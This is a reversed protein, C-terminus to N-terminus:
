QSLNLLTLFFYYHKVYLLFQPLNLDLPTQFKCLKLPGNFFHVYLIVLPM